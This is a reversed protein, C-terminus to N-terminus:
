DERVTRLKGRAEWSSWVFAVAGLPAPRVVGIGRGPLWARVIGAKESPPIAAWAMPGLVFGYGDHHFQHSDPLSENTYFLWHSGRNAYYDPTGLLLGAFDTAKNTDTEVVFLGNGGRVGHCNKYVNSRKFHEGAVFTQDTFSRM